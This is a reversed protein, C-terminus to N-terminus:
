IDEIGALLARERMRDSVRKRAYWEGYSQPKNRVIGDVEEQTPIYYGNGRSYRRHGNTDVGSPVPEECATLAFALAFVQDDHEGRPVDIRYRENSGSGTKRLQMAKMQRILSQIPPIMISTSRIAHELRDLLDQRNHANISTRTIPIGKGELAECWYMGGMGSADAVVERIGWKEVLGEISSNIYEQSHESGWEWVNMVRRNRREMILFVTPDDSRGFDLGAVYEQGPIPETLVSGAICDNIGRFYAANESHKALYLREWSALPMYEKDLLIDEKEEETLLPNDMYTATYGFISKQRNWPQLTTQYMREFWHESWLPPIGECLVRGLREHSHTTPWVKEFADNSIDQSESLALYDLGVTQLSQADDSSKLELLGARNDWTPFGKLWVFKETQNWGKGNGWVMEKPILARLENWIQRGQPFSPVVIWAHFPPVLATPRKKKSVEHYADYLDGVLCRTKGWRRAVYLCIVRAWRRQRHVEMQGEHPQYNLQAM